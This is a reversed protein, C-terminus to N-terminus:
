LGNRWVLRRLIWWVARCPMGCCEIWFGEGSGCLDTMWLEKKKALYKEQMQRVIFIANTTGKGSTFGFQMSDLTGKIKVKKEVLRELVKMVHDILKIGRHSGCDLVNRNGENISLM